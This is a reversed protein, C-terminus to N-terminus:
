RMSENLTEPYKLPVAKDLAAQVSKATDAMYSAFDFSDAACGVTSVCVAVSPHCCIRYVPQLQMLIVVASYLHLGLRLLVTAVGLLLLQGEDFPQLAQVCSDRLALQALAAHAAGPKQTVEEATIPAAACVIVQLLVALM